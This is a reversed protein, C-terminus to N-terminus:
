ESDMIKHRPTGKRRSKRSDSNNTNNSNVLPPPTSKATVVPLPSPTHRVKSLSSVPTTDIPNAQKLPPPGVKVKSSIVNTTSTNSPSHKRKGVKEVVQKQILQQSIKSLTRDLNTSTKPVKSLGGGGQEELSKRKRSGVTNDDVYSAALGGSTVVRGASSTGVIHPNGNTVVPNILKKVHNVSGGGVLADPKINLPQQQKPNLLMAKELAVTQQKAEECEMNFKEEGKRVEDMLEKLQTALKSRQFLKLNTFDCAECLLVQKSNNKRIQWASAFDCGCQNCTPKIKTPQTVATKSYAPDFYTTVTELGINKIFAADNVPIIPWVQRFTKPYAASGIKKDIQKQFNRKLASQKLVFERYRSSNEITKLITAEDLEAVAQLFIEFIM